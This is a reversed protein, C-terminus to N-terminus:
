VDVALALLAEDLWPDHQGAAGDQADKATALAREAIERVRRLEARLVENEIVYEHEIDSM